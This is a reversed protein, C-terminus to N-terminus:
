PEDQRLAGVKTLQRKGQWFSTNTPLWQPITTDGGLVRRSRASRLGVPKRDIRDAELQSPNVKTYRSVQPRHAGISPIGGRMRDLAKETVDVLEVRNGKLPMRVHSPVARAVQELLDTVTVDGRPGWVATSSAM